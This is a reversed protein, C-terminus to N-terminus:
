LGVPSLTLMWAGLADSLGYVSACAHAPEIFLLYHLPSSVNALPGFASLALTIAVLVAVAVTFSFVRHPVRIARAARASWRAFMGVDDYDISDGDSDAGSDGSASTSAAIAAEAAEVAAISPVLPRMFPATLARFDFCTGPGAPLSAVDTFRQWREITICCFFNSPALESPMGDVGGGGAGEKKTTLPLTNLTMRQMTKADNGALLAPRSGAGSGAGGPGTASSSSSASPSATSSAAFARAAAAIAALESERVAATETVASLYASSARVKAVYDLPWGCARVAVDDNGHQTRLRELHARAESRKVLDKACDDLSATPGLFVSHDISESARQMASYDGRRAAEVLRDAHESAPHPRTLSFRSLYDSMAVVSSSFFARIPELRVLQLFVAVLALVVYLPRILALPYIVRTPIGPMVPEQAEIASRLALTEGTLPFLNDFLDPLALLLASFLIGWRVFRMHVRASRLEPTVTITFRLVKPWLTFSRSALLRATAVELAARKMRAPGSRLEAATLHALPLPLVPAPDLACAAIVIGSNFRFGHPRFHRMQERPIVDENPVARSLERAGDYFLGFPDSTDSPLILANAGAGNGARGHLQQQQQQRDHSGSPQEQQNRYNRNRYGGSGHYPPGSRVPIGPQMLSWQPQLQPPQQQQLSNRRGRRNRGHSRSGGADGSLPLSDQAKSEASSSSSSGSSSDDGADEPAKKGETERAPPPPLSVPIGTTTLARLCQWASPPAPAIVGPTKAVGIDSGVVAAGAAAAAASSSSPPSASESFEGERHLGAYMGARDTAGM